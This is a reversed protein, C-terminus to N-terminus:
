SNQLQETVQPLLLSSPLTRCIKLLLQTQRLFVARDLAIKSSLFSGRHAGFINHNGWTHFGKVIIEM